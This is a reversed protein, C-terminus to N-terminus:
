SKGVRGPYAVNEPNQSALPQLEQFNFLVATVNLKNPKPDQKGVNDRVGKEMGLRFGNAKFSISLASKKAHKRKPGMCIWAFINVRYSKLIPLPYLSVGAFISTYLSAGGPAKFLSRIHPLVEANTITQSQYRIQISPRKAQEQTGYFFHPPYPRSTYSTTSVAGAFHRAARAPCSHSM